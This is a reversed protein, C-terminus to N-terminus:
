HYYTVGGSMYSETNSIAVGLEIGFRIKEFSQFSAGFVVAIPIEYRGDYFNIGVPVALYPDLENGKDANKEGNKLDSRTLTFSKHLYPVASLDFTGGLRNRLYLGQLALGIGPQGDIDPFFDFTFAGGARFRRNGGGTGLTVQLNSLDSIGHTYKANFGASGGTSFVVEPEIGIAFEGPSVFKPLNFVGARALNLSGLGTLGFMAGLLAFLIPKLVRHAISSM